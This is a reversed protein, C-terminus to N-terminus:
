PGKRLVAEFRDAEDASLLGDRDADIREFDRPPGVFERRSVDGDRNRDMKRFWLPGAAPGSPGQETGYRALLAAFNRLRNADSPGRSLTLGYSRPVDDKTVLGDGDRDLQEVLRFANRMERVGLRGDRDADILDFLGRGQDTVALAACSTQARAQFDGVWDLFAFLEKEDLKGDGDRDMVKFSNRFFPSEKAEAADLHGDNNKDAANLQDRYRDRVNYAGMGGRQEAKTRLDIRAAGLDLVVM